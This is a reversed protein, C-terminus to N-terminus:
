GVLAIVHVGVEIREIVRAKTSLALKELPWRICLKSLEEVLGDLLMHVELLRRVLHNQSTQGAPVLM